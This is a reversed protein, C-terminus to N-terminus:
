FGIGGVKTSGCYGHASWTFIAFIAQLAAGDGGTTPAVFDETGYAANDHLSAESEGRPGRERDRATASWRTRSWHSLAERFTDSHEATM